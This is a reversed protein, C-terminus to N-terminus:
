RKVGTFRILVEDLSKWNKLGEQLGFAKRLLQKKHKM